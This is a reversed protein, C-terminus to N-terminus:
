PIVERVCRFGFSYNSNGPVYWLRLTARTYRADDEWSGGRLVRVSGSSPGTPDTNPSNRYYDKDYWDQCWEWVNGHMDYLGWANAQKEGVPHTQNGSNGRHWAMADLDGGYRGTTGARAAYEWEAETPLRYRGEGKGSLKKLFEQAMEWSVTEVPRNAGKFHSPNNGMVAEWEAQTVPCKGMWFAKRHVPGQDSWHESGMDFEGAPIYVLEMGTSPSRWLHGAKPEARPPTVVAPRPPLDPMVAPRPVTPEKIRARAIAVFQGQPFKKLYEEFLEGVGSDRISNWFALEVQLSTDPAPPPRPGPTVAPAPSEVPLPAAPRVVTPQGWCCKAELLRIEDSLAEATPFRETPDKALLRGLLEDLGTGALAPNWQSAPPPGQSLHAQMWQESSEADFPLRGTLMEYLTLGLAYLDVRGDLDRGKVGRWQEPAAYQPTLLVRSSVTATSEKLAVIGFDLVKPSERGLADRRLLINDPKIDRHIVGLAHATALAEAVGRAIGLAREIPLPGRLSALLGRVSVGEIYEMAIFLSGDEAQDLDDVQVINAHRLQRTVKAEQRFRKVFRPDRALQPDMVKLARVEELALHEAKYVIGMGGQGIKGLIRYKNRIIAGPPWERSEILRAGDNACAASEDGYESLCIPCHKV